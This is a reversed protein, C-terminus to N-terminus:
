RARNTYNKRDAIYNYADKYESLYHILIGDVRAEGKREIIMRERRSGLIDKASQVAQKLIPHDHVWRDWTSIPINYKHAFDMIRLADTDTKVWEVLEHAFLEIERATVNAERQPVPNKVRRNSKTKPPTIKSHNTTKSM